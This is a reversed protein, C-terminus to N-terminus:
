DGAVLTVAYAIDLDAYYVIDISVWEDAGAAVQYAGRVQIARYNTGREAEIADLIHEPLYDLLRYDAQAMADGLHLSSVRGYDLRVSAGVEEM